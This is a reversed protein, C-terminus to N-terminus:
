ADGSRETLTWVYRGNSKRRVFTRGRHWRDRQKALERGMVVSSPGTGTDIDIGAARVIDAIGAASWETILPDLLLLDVLHDWALSEDDSTAQFEAKNELLGSIGAHELLGGM